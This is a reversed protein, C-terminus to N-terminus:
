FTATAVFTMTTTYTGAPTSGAVNAIYAAHFRRFDDASASSAITDGSVFRFQDVTNYNATPAASGAGDPNTGVAPTANSRLNLGFQESGQTSATQTALADITNAGSTLTSGAITVAYGSSANTSVGLQSVGDGTSAPTLTGLDVDTGTAGSCSSNTIGSTGTCFVLTEDVSASVNIQNATSAAVVGADTPSGSTDTSAFTSIRVYFTANTTSPNDITGLTYSVTTGGTVSAASRTIYPVGNAANEITFSAAGSQATLTAATTDLDTPTTCAGSATTCYEFEISGVNGTTPVTFDFTHSATDGAASTSLTLSRDTLQAASVPVSVVLVTVFVLAALGAIFGSLRYTIMKYGGIYNKSM